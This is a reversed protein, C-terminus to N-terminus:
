RVFSQLQIHTKQLTKYRITVFQLKPYTRAWVRTHGCKRVGKRVCKRVYARERASVCLGTRIQAYKRVPLPLCAPLGPAPRPGLRRDTVIPTEDM